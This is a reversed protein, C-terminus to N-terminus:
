LEKHAVRSQPPKMRSGTVFYTHLDQAFSVVANMVTKNGRVLANYGLVAPIAVVLGLATMILAEGVPGAVKDITSHGSLGIAVLANYIGWVTGFLGIFPATSGVSALIALGAQLRATFAEIGIRQARSIWESADINGNMNPQSARYHEVAERGREVQRWFPNDFSKGLAALGSEADKAQWFRHSNRAMKRFRLIDLTKTLIVIWTALSMVMLIIAVGRIVMDGQNWVHMLGFEANM